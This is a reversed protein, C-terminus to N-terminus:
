RIRCYTTLRAAIPNSTPTVVSFAQAHFKAGAFLTLPSANPTDTLADTLPAASTVTPGVGWTTSQGSPPIAASRNTFILTGFTTPESVNCTTVVPDIPGLVALACLLAVTSASFTRLSRTFAVSTTATDLLV